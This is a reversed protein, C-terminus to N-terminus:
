FSHLGEVVDRTLMVTEFEGLEDHKSSEIYVRFFHFIEM